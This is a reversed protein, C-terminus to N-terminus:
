NPRQRPDCKNNHLYPRHLPFLFRSENELEDTHVKSCKLNYNNQASMKKM